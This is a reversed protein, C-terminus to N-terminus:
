DTPQERGLGVSLCRWWPRATVFLVPLGLIAGLMSITLAAGILVVPTLPVAVLWGWRRVLVDDCRVPRRGAMPVDTSRPDACCRHRSWTRPNTTPGGRYTARMEERSRNESGTRAHNSAENGAGVAAWSCPHGAIADPSWVSIRAGVPDPLVSVDNRHPMSRSAVM